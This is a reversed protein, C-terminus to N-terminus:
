AWTGDGRLSQAANGSLKPCLGHRTTSANLDTTDDPAALDDLKIADAGGSQHRTAHDPLSVGAILSNIDRFFDRWKPTVRGTAVDVLPEEPRPIFIGAM